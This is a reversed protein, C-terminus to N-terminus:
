EYNGQRGPHKSDDSISRHGVKLKFAGSSDSAEAVWLAVETDIRYTASAASTSSDETTSPTCKGGDPGHVGAEVYM